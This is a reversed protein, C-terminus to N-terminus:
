FEVQKFDMNRDFNRGTLEIDNMVQQWFTPNGEWSSSNDNFSYQIIRLKKRKKKAQKKNQKKVTKTSHKM